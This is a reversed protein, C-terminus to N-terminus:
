FGHKSLNAIVRSVQEILDKDHTRPVKRLAKIVLFENIMSTSVEENSALNGLAVTSAFALRKDGSLAWNALPVIFDERAIKLQM